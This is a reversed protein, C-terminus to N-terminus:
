FDELAKMGSGTAIVVVREKSDVMGQEQILPLAAFAAASSPELLLGEKALQHMASRINEDSVAVGGGNSERLARLILKGGTPKAVLLGSAITKPDTWEEVDERRGHFAEVVPACSEAQVAIMRPLSYEDILGIQAAERLKKWIGVVGVGGGTPQIIVDPATWDLQEIIELAL